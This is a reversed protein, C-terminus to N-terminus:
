TYIILIWWSSCYYIEAETFGSIFISTSFCKQMREHLIWLLLKIKKNLAVWQIRFCNTFDEVACVILSFVVHNPLALQLGSLTIAGLLNSITPLVFLLPGTCVAHRLNVQFESLVNNLIWISHSRLVSPAVCSTKKLLIVFEKTLARGVRWCCFM